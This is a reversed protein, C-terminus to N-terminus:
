SIVVAVAALALDFYMEIEIWESSEFYWISRHVTHLPDICLFFKKVKKTYLFSISYCFLKRILEENNGGDQIESGGAGNAVM